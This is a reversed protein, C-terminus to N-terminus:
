NANLFRNLKIRIREAAIGNRHGRVANYVSGVPLKNKRAWRRLNMGRRLLQQRVETYNCTAADSM